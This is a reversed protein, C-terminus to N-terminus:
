RLQAGLVQYVTSVFEIYKPHQLKSIKTTLENKTSIHLSSRALNRYEFKRVRKHKVRRTKYVPSYQLKTFLGPKVSLTDLEANALTARQLSSSLTRSDTGLPDHTHARKFHLLQLTQIQFLFHSIQSLVHEGVETRYCLWGVKAYFDSFSLLNNCLITQSSCPDIKLRNTGTTHLTLVKLYYCLVFFYINHQCIVQKYKEVFIQKRWTKWNRLKLQKM